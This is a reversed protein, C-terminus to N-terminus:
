YDGECYITIQGKEVKMKANEPEHINKKFYFRTNHIRLREEAVKFAQLKTKIQEIENSIKDNVIWM